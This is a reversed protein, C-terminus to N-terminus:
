TLGSMFGFLFALVMLGAYIWGLIVITKLWGSLENFGIKKDM